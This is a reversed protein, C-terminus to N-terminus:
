RCIRAIWRQSRPDGHRRLLARMRPTILGHGFVQLAGIIGEDNVEMLRPGADTLAVDWHQIRMMPFVGAARICLRRAEPWDPLEFGPLEAGTLPATTVRGTLSRVMRVKGTDPDIDALLNNVSTSEFRDTDSEDSAIKWLVSVIEVGEEDQILVVRVGSIQRSGLLEVLASHPRLVEQFLYGMEPEVCPLRAAGTVIALFKEVPVESGSHTLLSDTDARYGVFHFCGSSQSSCSPKSFVPWAADRRLWRGLQGPSEFSLGCIEPRPRASAMYVGRLAPLPLDFAGAFLALTLKDHAPLVARRPNLACALDGEARWGLFDEPQADGVFDRDFLRYSLYDSVGLTPNRRRAAIAGALLRPIGIGSIKSARRLAQVSPHSFLGPM